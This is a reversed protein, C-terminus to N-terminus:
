PSSRAWPAPMTPFTRSNMTAVISPPLNGHRAGQGGRAVGYGVCRTHGDGIVLDEGDQRSAVTGTMQDAGMGPSSM